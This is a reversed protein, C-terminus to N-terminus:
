LLSVRPNAVHKIQSVGQLGNSVIVAVKVIMRKQELSQIRQYVKHASQFISQRNHYIWVM